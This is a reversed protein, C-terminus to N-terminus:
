GTDTMRGRRISSSEKPSPFLGEGRGGKGTVVHYHMSLLSLGKSLATVGHAGGPCYAM